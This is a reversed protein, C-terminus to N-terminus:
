DPLFEAGTCRGRDFHILVFAANTRPDTSDPCFAFNGDPGRSLAPRRDTPHDRYARDFVARVEAESMGPRIRRAVRVAPKVPSQDVFPLAAVGAVFLAAAALGLRSRGLRSVLGLLVGFALFALEFGPYLSAGAWGDLALLFWAALALCATAAIGAIRRTM